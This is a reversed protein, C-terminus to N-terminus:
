LDLHNKKGLIVKQSYADFNGTSGITNKVNYLQEAIILLMEMKLEACDKDLVAKFITMIGDAFFAVAKGAKSVLTSFVRAEPSVPTWDTCSQRFKKILPGM